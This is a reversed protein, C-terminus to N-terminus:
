PNMLRAAERAQGDPNVRLLFYPELAWDVLLKKSSICAEIGQFLPEQRNWWFGSQDPGIPRSSFVVHSFGNVTLYRLIADPNDFKEPPSLGFPQFYPTGVTSKRPVYLGRHEFVLLIRADLPTRQDIAKTLSVYQDRLTDDVWETRSWVGILTEWSALYYGANTWPISVIASISLVAMAAIKKPPALSALGQEALVSIVAVMPIAFRAQQSTLFWFVYMVIALAILGLSQSYDASRRRSAIGVVALLFLALLQWGFSGDYLKADFAILLPTAMFAALGSMGFADNGISHHYLSMELTPSDTSFWGAFYPFVPNGTQLWPRVYFPLAVLLATALCVVIPGCPQNVKWKFGIRPVLWFILPSCFLIIGTLKISAAGGIMIGILVSHVRNFSNEPSAIEANRLVAIIAALDLLLFAEVYCNASIMLATPSVAFAFVVLSATGPNSSRHSSFILLWIAVIWAIWVLLRFTILSEIPATMWCLLEVLSPFGSHPLDAYFAPWGDAHWRRPLVSHYVLEDWGTPYCLAPGLTFASLPIFWYLVPFSQLQALKRPRLSSPMVSRTRFYIACGSIGLAMLLWVSRYDGLVGFSGLIVCVFAVLNLGAIAYVLKLSFTLKRRDGLFIELLLGVGLAAFGLCAVGLMAGPISGMEELFIFREFPQM